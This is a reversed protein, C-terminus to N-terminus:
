YNEKMKPNLLITPGPLTKRPLGAIYDDVKSSDPTVIVSPGPVTDPIEKQLESNYNQGGTRGLTGWVEATKQKQDLPAAVYAAILPAADAGMQVLYNYADDSIEGHLSSMNTRYNAMAAVREELATTYAALDIAGTEADQYTEWSEGVESLEGQISDAYAATREAKEELEAAGSAIYADEALQAEQAATRAKELGDVIKASDEARSIAAGYSSDKTVDIAEAEDELSKQHAKEKEILDDLGEINGAHAQAIKDFSSAAADQLDYLDSLTQTGEETTTAMEKLKDVLYDISPGGVTGTEILEATLESVKERFKESEVGGAELGAIILGTAVAGAAGAALGLPGLSGVIGGLTGQVLDGISEFSGDFSSVVESLNAKAEDKFEATAESAADSGKDAGRKLNDGLDDGASKSERKVSDALDKFSRDTKDNAKIADRSGREVGDSLGDGIKKGSRDADKASDDIADTLKHVSKEADRTGYKVGDALSEGIDDGKGDTSRVLDDLSDAVKEFADASDKAGRLVERTNMAIDLNLGKAM